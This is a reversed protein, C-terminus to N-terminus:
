IECLEVTDAIISNVESSVDKGPHDADLHYYEYQIGMKKALALENATGKSKGDHIFVCFNCDNFEKITRYHFRGAAKQHQLFHLTLSVGTERCVEQTVACVGGPEGATIVVEPQHERIVSRVIERVRDDSLSRSGCFAIRNYQKIYEVKKGLEEAAQIEKKVGKSEEWGPFCLVHVVDCSKLMCLDHNLWYSEPVKTKKFRESYLLPCYNLVGQRVLMMSYAIAKQRRGERVEEDDSWFPCAVFIM